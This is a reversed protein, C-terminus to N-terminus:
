FVKGQAPQSAANGQADSLVKVDGAMAELRAWGLVEDDGTVLIVQQTTAMRGLFELVPAKDAWELGHLPDDLFLPLREKGQTTSAIGAVRGALAAIAEQSRPGSGLNEQGATTAFNMRLRAAETLQQRQALVWVAPIAGALEAWQASTHQYHNSASLLTERVSGDGVPRHDLREDIEPDTLGTGAATGREAAIAKALRREFLVCGVTIALSCCILIVAAVEGLTNLGIIAALPLTSGAVLTALRIRDQRKEATTAVELSKAVKEISAAETPHARAASTADRLTQEASLVAEASEILRDYDLQSLRTFWEDTPDGNRLDGEGAILSRVADHIAIGSPALLNISGDASRFADSIDVAQEIDIVRHTAGHPRFAVIARGDDLDAEVHVGSTATSLADVLARTVPHTPGNTSDVVTLGAHFDYTRVSGEAPHTSIRTLKM